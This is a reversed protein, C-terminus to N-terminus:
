HIDTFLAGIGVLFLPISATADTDEIITLDGTSAMCIVAIALSIFLISFIINKTKM